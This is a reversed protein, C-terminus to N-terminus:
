RVTQGLRDWRIGDPGNSYWIYRVLGVLHKAPVPGWFRSDSSHSRNDGLVFFHGPPVVYPEPDGKQPFDMSASSTDVAVQYERGDLVERRCSAEERSWEDGLEVEREDYRCPTSAGDPRVASGNVILEDNKVEVRDGPIGVVRKIFTQEPRVPYTFIVLEGRRPERSWLEFKSALVHDGIALTPVMGGSPIKFAEMYHARVGLGLFVWCAVRLGIEAWLRGPGPSLGRPVFLPGIVVAPYWLFAMAYAIPSFPAVLLLGLLGLLAAHGFRPRGAVAFGLSPFLLGLLFIKAGSAPAEVRPAVERALEPRDM